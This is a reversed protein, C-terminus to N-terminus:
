AVKGRGLRVYPLPQLKAAESGLGRSKSARTRKRGLAGRALAWLVALAFLALGCQILLSTVIGDM